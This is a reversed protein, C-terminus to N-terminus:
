WNEQGAEDDGDIFDTLDSNVADFRASPNLLDISFGAPGGHPNVRLADELILEPIVEAYDEDHWNHPRCQLQRGERGRDAVGLPM